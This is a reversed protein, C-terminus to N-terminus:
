GSVQGCSMPTMIHPNRSPEVVMLKVVLKFVKTVMVMQSGKACLQALDKSGYTNSSGNVGVIGEGVM